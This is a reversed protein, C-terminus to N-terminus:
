GTATVGGGVSAGHAAHTSADHAHWCAALDRVRLRLSAPAVPPRAPPRRVAALFRGLAAVHARCPACADLHAAFGGAARPALEGDLWAHAEIETAPCVAADRPSRWGPAPSALDFPSLAASAPRLSRSLPM